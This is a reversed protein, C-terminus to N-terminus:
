RRRSPNPLSGRSYSRPTAPITVNGMCANNAARWLAHQMGAQAVYDSRAAEMESSSSRANIASGHTLLVAVTAVLFLTVVVTILLYGRQLRRGTM